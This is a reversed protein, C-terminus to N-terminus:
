WGGRMRGRGPKAQRMRKRDSGRARKEGLRQGEDGLGELLGWVWGLDELSQEVGRQWVYIGLGLLVVYM